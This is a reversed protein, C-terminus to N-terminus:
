FQKLKRKNKLAKSNTRVYYYIRNIVMITIKIKSILKVSEDLKQYDKVSDM